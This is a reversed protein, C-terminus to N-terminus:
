KADKKFKALASISPGWISGIFALITAIALLVAKVDEESTDIGFWGLLIALPTTLALLFPKITNLM